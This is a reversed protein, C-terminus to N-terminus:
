HGGRSWAVMKELRTQVGSGGPQCGQTRKSKELGSEECFLTVKLLDCELCILLTEVARLNIELNRELQGAQWPRQKGWLRVKEPGCEWEGAKKGNSVDKTSKGVESERCM